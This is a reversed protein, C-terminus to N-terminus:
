YCVGHMYCDILVVTSKAMCTPRTITPSWHLFFDKCETFYAYGEVHSYTCNREILSYYIDYVRRSHVRIYLSKIARDNDVIANEHM